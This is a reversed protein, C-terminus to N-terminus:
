KKVDAWQEGILKRRHEDILKHAAACAARHAEQASNFTGRIAGSVVVERDLSVSFVTSEFSRGDASITSVLISYGNYDAILQEDQM